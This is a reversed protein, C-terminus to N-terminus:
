RSESLLNESDRGERMTVGDFVTPRHVSSDNLMRIEHQPFPFSIGAKQAAEYVAVALSTRIQTAQAFENTWVRLEFNISRDGFSVFVAQPAPERLVEPHALATRELVAIAKKPPTAYDVGVPLELRMSRDGHTWNTVKEAIFQSNPM